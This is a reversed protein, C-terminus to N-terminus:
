RKSSMRLKPWNSGERSRSNVGKMDFVLYRNSLRTERYPRTLVPLSNDVANDMNTNNDSANDNTTTINGSSDIESNDNILSETEINLDHNDENDSSNAISGIFLSDYFEPKNTNTQHYMQNELFHVDRANIIEYSVPDILRYGKRDQYYGIFMM